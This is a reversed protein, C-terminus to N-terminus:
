RSYYNYEMITIIVDNSMFFVPKSYLIYDYDKPIMANLEEKLSDLNDQIKEGRKTEFNLIM